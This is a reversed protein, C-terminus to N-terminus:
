GEATPAAHLEPEGNLDALMATIRAKDIGDIWYGVNRKSRIEIGWPELDKQMMCIAVRMNTVIGLTIEVTYRDVTPSSLLMSLIRTRAESMKFLIRLPDRKKYLAEELEDIRARLDNFEESM